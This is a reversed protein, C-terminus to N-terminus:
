QPLRQSRSSLPTPDYRRRARYNRVATFFLIKPDTALRYAFAFLWALSRFGSVYASGVHSVKRTQKRIEKQDSTCDFLRDICYVFLM